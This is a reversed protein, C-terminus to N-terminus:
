DSVTMHDAVGRCGPTADAATLLARRTTEDPVPGWLHIIGQGVIVGETQLARGWPEASLAHIFARRIDRDSLPPTPPHATLARLLNARTVIGVLRGAEDLVPLRKIAHQAMLRALEAVPTDPAASIVEATMVDGVRRSHGAIFDRMAAGSGFLASLLGRPATPALRAVLDGESVVGVVEGDALVPLGSIRREILLRAVEELTMEPTATIITTTMIDAANM